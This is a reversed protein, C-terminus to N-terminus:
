RRAAFTELLAIPKDASPVPSRARCAIAGIARGDRLLPVYLQSRFGRARAERPADSEPDM